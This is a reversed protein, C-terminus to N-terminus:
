LKQLPSPLLRGFSIAGPGTLLFALAMLLETLAFEMGGKTVNFGHPLHVTYIAGMMVVLICAAGFRFFIGSLIALSAGFQALGALYGMALPLHHMAAFQRPGPGGYSGFLIASGHYFFVLGSAIRLLLLAVSVRLSMNKESSKQRM